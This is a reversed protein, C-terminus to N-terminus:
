PGQEPMIEPTWASPRAVYTDWVETTFHATKFRMGAARAAKVAATKSLGKDIGHEVLGSTISDGLAKRANGEVEHRLPGELRRLVLRPESVPFRMAECVLEFMDDDLRTMRWVADVDGSKASGGRQGKSEDKGSHDLRVLARGSQKLKLGTHRYFNLWTDNENEDGEISRSVTDIVIVECGYEEAAALLQLSGAETDLAAMTPFSLYHLHGLDDPAYEMDVLRRRIDGRPDNEFDVYLTSRAPGTPAHGFMGRGCSIACALELM